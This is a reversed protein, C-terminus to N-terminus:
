RKKMVILFYKNDKTSEFTKPRDTSDSRDAWCNTVTDKDIKIIGLIPKGAEPGDKPTLDIAVPKQGPDVVVTASKEEGEDGKKFKITFTDGKITLTISKLFEDPAEEGARSM